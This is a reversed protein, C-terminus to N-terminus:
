REWFQGAELLFLWTFGFCLSRSHQAAFPANDVPRGCFYHVFADSAHLNRRRGLQLASLTQDCISEEIKGTPIASRELLLHLGGLPRGAPLSVNM